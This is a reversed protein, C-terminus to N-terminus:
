LSHKKRSLSTPDLVRLSNMEPDFEILINGWFNKESDLDIGEYPVGLHYSEILDFFADLGATFEDKSCGERILFKVKRENDIEVYISFVLSHKLKVEGSSTIMVCHFDKDKSFFRGWLKKLTKKLTIYHDRGAEKMFSDFYPKLLFLTIATLVLPDLSSQPGRPSLSKRRFKLPKTEIDLCLEELFDSPVREDHILILHSDKM